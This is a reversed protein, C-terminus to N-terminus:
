CDLVKALQAPSMGTIRELEAAFARVDKEYLDFAALLAQEDARRKFLAIVLARAELVRQGAERLAADEMSLLGRCVAVVRDLKQHRHVLDPADPM